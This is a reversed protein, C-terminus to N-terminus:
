TLMTAPHEGNQSLWCRTPPWNPRPCSWGVGPGDPRNLYRYGGRGIKSIKDGQGVHEKSTIVVVAQLAEIPYVQRVRIIHLYITVVRITGSTNSMIGPGFGDGIPPYCDSTDKYHIVSGSRRGCARIQELHSHVLSAVSESKM